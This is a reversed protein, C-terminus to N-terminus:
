EEITLYYVKKIKPSPTFNFNIKRGQCMITGQGLRIAKLVCEDIKGNLSNLLQNMSKESASIFTFENSITTIIGLNCKFVTYQTITISDKQLDEQFMILDDPSDSEIDSRAEPYAKKVLSASDGIGFPIDNFVSRHKHTKVCSTFIVLFIAIRNLSIM